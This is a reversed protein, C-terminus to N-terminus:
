WIVFPFLILQLIIRPLIQLKEYDVDNALPKGALDKKFLGLRAQWDPPPIYLIRDFRGPRM